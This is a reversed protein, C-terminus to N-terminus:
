ILDLSEVAVFQFDGDGGRGDIGGGVGGEDFKEGLAEVEGAGADLEDAALGGTVLRNKDHPQASILESPFQQLRRSSDKAKRPNTPGRLPSRVDDRVISANLGHRPQSPITRRM